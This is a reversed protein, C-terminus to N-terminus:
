REAAPRPAEAIRLLQIACALLAAMAGNMVFPNFAKSFYLPELAIILLSLGLMALINLGHLLRSPKLMLLLCEKAARNTSDLERYIKVPVDPHDLYLRIGEESLRSGGRLVYGKNPGAEITYGEERLSKVAKWIAARTCNLEAAAAEGSILENEHQELLKLMRAKVTM